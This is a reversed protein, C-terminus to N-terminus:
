HEVSNKVGDVIFSTAVYREGLPNSPAVLFDGQYYLESSYGGDLNAAFEAGNDLMIKECDLLTAGVGDSGRGSLALLLIAGDSRQGIASRPAIGWSGDDEGLFPRGDKVLQPGFSIADQIGLEKIEEYKYKGIILAGQETIGIVPQRVSQDGSIYKGRSITIGMPIGGTGKGKVDYFGGANIGGVANADKVMESVTQGVNNIHKTVAVHVRKPDKVVLLSGNYRKEEIPIVEIGDDHVDSFNDTRMDGESMKDMGVPKYKALATPSYFYEIYWPHRSTLVAGIVTSRLHEFPGYLVLAATSLGVYISLLIGIGLLKGKKKRRKRRRPLTDKKDIKVVSM